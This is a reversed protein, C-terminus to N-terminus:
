VYQLEHLLKLSTNKNMLIIRLLYKQIKYRYGLSVEDWSTYSMDSLYVTSVIYLCHNGM